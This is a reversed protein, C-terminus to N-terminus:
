EDWQGDFKIHPMPTIEAQPLREHEELSRLTHYLQYVQVKVQVEDSSYSQVEVNPGIYEVVKLSQLDKSHEYLPGLLLSADQLLNTFFQSTVNGSSVTSMSCCTRSCTLHKIRGPYNNKSIRNFRKHSSILLNQTSLIDFIYRQQTWRRKCITESELKM